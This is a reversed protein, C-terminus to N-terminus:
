RRRLQHRALGAFWTAIAAAALAVVWRRASGGAGVASLAAVAAFALTLVVFLASLASKQSPASV